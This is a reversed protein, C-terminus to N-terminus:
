TRALPSGITFLLFRVIVHIPLMAHKAAASAKRGCALAYEAGAEGALFLTTTSLPASNISPV